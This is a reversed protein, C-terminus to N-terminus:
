AKKRAEDYEAPTIGKTAELFEVADPKPTRHWGILFRTLNDIERYATTRMVSKPFLRKATKVVLPHFYLDKAGFLHLLEHLITGPKQYSQGYLITYENYQGGRSAVSAFSRGGCKTLFLFAAQSVQYTELLKRYFSDVDPFGQSKALLDRWSETDDWTKSVPADFTFECYLCSLDVGEKESEAKLQNLVDACPEDLKQTQKETWKRRKKNWFLKADPHNVFAFCFLTRGTLNRCTGSNRGATFVHGPYLSATAATDAGPPNTTGTPGTTAENPGTTGGGPVSGADPKTGASSKPPLTVAAGNGPAGTGFYVIGGTVVMGGSTNQDQKEPEM